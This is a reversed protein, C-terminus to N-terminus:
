VENSLLKRSEEEIMVPIDDHIPYALYDFDCILEQSNSNYSLPKKCRPCVLIDLLKKNLM